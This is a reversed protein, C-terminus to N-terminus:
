PVQSDIVFLLLKSMINCYSYGGPLAEQEKFAHLQQFPDLLCVFDCVMDYTIRAGRYSLLTTLREAQLPDWGSLHIDRLRNQVFFTVIAEWSSSSPGHASHLSVDCSGPGGRRVFMVWSPHLVDDCLFQEKLDTMKSIRRKVLGFMKASKPLYSYLHQKLLLMASENTVLLLGEEVSSVGEEAQQRLLAQWVPQKEDAFIASELAAQRELYEEDSLERTLTGAPEQFDELDASVGEQLRDFYDDSESM